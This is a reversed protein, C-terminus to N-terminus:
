ARYGKTILNFGIITLVSMGLLCLGIKGVSQEGSTAAATAGSINESLPAIIGPALNASLGGMGPSLTTPASGPFPMMGYVSGQVREMVDSFGM